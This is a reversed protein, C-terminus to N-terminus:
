PMERFRSRGGSHRDHPFAGRRASLYRGLATQKTETSERLRNRGCFDLQHKPFSRGGEQAEMMLSLIGTRPNPVNGELM